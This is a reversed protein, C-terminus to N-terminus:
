AALRRSWEAHYRELAADVRLPQEHLLAAAREVKLGGRLPRPALLKVEATWVPVVEGQLGFRRAIRRAFDVRDLTTGGSAHIVGRLDTELLLELAM